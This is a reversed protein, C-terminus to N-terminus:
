RGPPHVNARAGALSAIGKGGEKASTAAPGYYLANFFLKFTGVTQARNQPRFGFMIIRGKGFGVDILAPKRRFFQEGNLFGSM